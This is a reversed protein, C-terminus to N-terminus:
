FEACISDSFQKLTVLQRLGPYRRDRSKLYAVMRHSRGYPLILSQSQKIGGNEEGTTNYKICRFSLAGHGDTELVYARLDLFHKLINYLKWSSKGELHGQM